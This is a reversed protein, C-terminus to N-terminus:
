LEEIDELDSLVVNYYDNLHERLLKWNDISDLITDDDFEEGYKIIIKEVADNYSNASITRFEPWYDDTCHTWIYKNM